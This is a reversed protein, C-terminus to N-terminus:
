LDKPDTSQFLDIVSDIRNALKEAHEKTFTEDLTLIKKGQEIQKGEGLTHLNSAHRKLANLFTDLKVAQFEALTEARVDIRYYPSQWAKAPSITFSEETDKSFKFTPSDEKNRTLKCPLHKTIWLEFQKAETKNQILLDNYLRAAITLDQNVLAFAYANFAVKEHMYTLYEKRKGHAARLFESFESKSVMAFHPCELGLLKLMSEKHIEQPTTNSEKVTVNGSTAPKNVTKAQKTKTKNSM